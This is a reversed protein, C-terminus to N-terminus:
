ATQTQNNSKEDSTKRKTPTKKLLQANNTGDGYLTVLPPSSVSVTETVSFGNFGTRMTNGYAGLQGIEIYDGEKVDRPLFFPGTMYDISDCTPGYFHFAKLPAQPANEGPRLLSVPFRFGIHGADFLSGYTGDNIYLVDGKRLEVKVIVSCSEAVLARGPECWFEYNGEPLRNFGNEIAQKYRTLPPPVLDPYISPFGGGIDIIDVPTRPLARMLDGVVGLATTYADPNMTQSGVHFSLGVRTAAKRAAKLLSLAKDPTAGFKGSLPIQADANPVALRLILTLDKAGATCSLIKDLEEMSDFAFDRVGHDFFSQEIAPRSKVPHMFSLEAGPCNDRVLQIEALSAVDFAKIGAQFLGKMVYPAPNAKVAYLTKGPFNDLFWRAASDLTESRFCTIPIDPSHQRIVDDPSDYANM